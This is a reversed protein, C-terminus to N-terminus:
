TGEPRFSRKGTLSEIDLRWIRTADVMKPAFTWDMEQGAQQRMTCRLANSKEDPSLLEVITGHGIVSEYRLGM